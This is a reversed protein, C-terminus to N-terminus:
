RVVGGRGGVGEAAVHIMHNLFVIPQNEDTNCVIHPCHTSLKRTPFEAGMTNAVSHLPYLNKELSNKFPM